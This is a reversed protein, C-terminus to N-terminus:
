VAGAEEVIRYTSCEDFDGSGAEDHEAQREDNGAQREDNGAEQKTMRVRLTLIETTARGEFRSGQVESRDEFIGSTM